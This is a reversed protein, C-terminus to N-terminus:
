TMGVSKIQIFNKIIKAIDGSSLNIFTKPQKSYQWLKVKMTSCLEINLLFNILYNLKIVLTELHNIIIFYHFLSTWAIKQM